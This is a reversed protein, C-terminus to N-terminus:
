REIGGRNLTIGIVSNPPLEISADGRSDFTVASTKQRPRLRSIGGYNSIASDPASLFDMTAQVTRGSFVDIGVKIEVPQVHRNVLWLAYTSRDANAMMLGRVDYGGEYGSRNASGAESAIVNELMHQRLIRMGWYVASPAFRSSDADRHFLPWPGNTAHLAHIFQGKILPDAALAIAMDAVSIAAALNGTQQWNSKWNTDAPTGMPTRGHETVWIEAGQEKEHNLAASNKCHQRIQHAVSPGWPRGDYYHHGSFGAVKGSLLSALSRNYTVADIGQTKKLADWDQSASIFKADPMESRIAQSVAQAVAGLKEPRWLYRDRDLENGLEWRIVAPRGQKQEEHLRRALLKAERAMESSSREEGYRGFLNAVYWANGDVKAVFDLYERIGFDAVLPGRWEVARQPERQTPTGVARQWDFNNAVTGGPYRYVAGPFARLWEVVDRNVSRTAPEWLSAQFEVWEINFGFFEPALKRIVRSSDSIVAYGSTARPKANALCNDSAESVICTSTLALFVVASLRVRRNM